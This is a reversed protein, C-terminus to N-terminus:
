EPHGVLFRLLGGFFSLGCDLLSGLAARDPEQARNSNSSEHTGVDMNVHTYMVHKKAIGWTQTGAPRIVRRVFAAKRLLVKHRYRVELCSDLRQRLQKYLLASWNEIRRSAGRGSTVLAKTSPGPSKM